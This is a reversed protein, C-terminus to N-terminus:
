DQKKRKIKTKKMLKKKQEWEISKPLLLLFLRNYNLLQITTQLHDKIIYNSVQHNSTHRTQKKLQQKFKEWERENFKGNKTKM